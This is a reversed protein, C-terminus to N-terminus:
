KLTPAPSVAAPNALRRTEAKAQAPTWGAAILAAQYRLILAADNTEGAGPAIFPRLLAFQFRSLRPAQRPQTKRPTKVYRARARVMAAHNQHSKM